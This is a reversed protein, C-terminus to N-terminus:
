QGARYRDLIDRARQVMAPSIEGGQELLQVAQESRQRWEALQAASPTVSQLGQAKVADFAQQNGARESRNLEAFRETLVRQLVDQDAASIKDLHRQDFALVGYTYLLPMDTLHKVRSYWQLTLAAVPPAAFADIVGTQLSTLVAGINLVVPAVDFVKVAMASSSDNAPLWVKQKQLDAVSAVPQASMLYAFGGDVPGFTRWGGDAFGQRLVPDLEARVADVEDYSRFLLPLNLVQSDKYVGALAGGQVLMGHLQGIRIRRQVAKDDGMVGGPYVRLTVRGETAQSIEESAARLTNVAATGDPYLTSIKLELAQALPALGLSLVMVLTRVRM